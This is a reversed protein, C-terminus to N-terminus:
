KKLLSELAARRAAPNRQPNEIEYDESGQEPGLSEAESLGPIAATVDGSALGMLAGIIGAARMKPMRSNRLRMNEVRTKNAWEIAEPDAMSKSPHLTKEDLYTKLVEPNERELKNLLAAQNEAVPYLPGTRRAQRGPVEVDLYQQMDIDETKDLKKM